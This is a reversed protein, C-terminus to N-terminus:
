LKIKKKANQNFNFIKKTEISKVQRDIFSFFDNNFSVIAGLSRYNEEPGFISSKVQFPSKNNLLELFQHSDGGRWGYIAQKPDGVVLLSGNSHEDDLSELAHSILPIM